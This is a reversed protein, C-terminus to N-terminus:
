CKRNYTHLACYPQIQLEKIKGKEAINSVNQRLSKSITGTVGIVILIAKTKVNWMHQITTTTTIIIIIIMMMMM